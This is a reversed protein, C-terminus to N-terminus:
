FIFVPALLFIAAVAMHGFSPRVMVLAAVIVLAAVDVM